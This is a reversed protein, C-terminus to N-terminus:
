LLYTAMLLRFIRFHILGADSGNRPGGSQNPCDCLFVAWQSMQIISTLSSSSKLNELSMGAITFTWIPSHLPGESVATTNLGFLRRSRVM